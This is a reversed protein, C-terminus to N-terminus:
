VRKAKLPAGNLERMFVARYYALFTAVKGNIRGCVAGEINDRIADAATTANFTETPEM